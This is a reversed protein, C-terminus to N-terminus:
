IKRWRWMGYLCNICWFVYQWMMCANGAIGWMAVYAIDISIWIFWQERYAMVMLIQAALAPVTTFADLYPQADDTFHALFWGTCWSLFILAVGGILCIKWGLSRTQLPIAANDQHTVYMRKRWAFVGYIQSVFYFINIGIGAYFRELYCLYTYTVIQGIGFVFTWLSGESCLLVSCIGLMGSVLSM